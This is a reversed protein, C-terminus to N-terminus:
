KHRIVLFANSYQGFRLLLPHKTRIVCEISTICKFCGGKKCWFHTLITASYTQSARNLLLWKLEIIDSWRTTYNPSKFEHKIADAFQTAKVRSDKGRFQQSGLIITETGNVKNLKDLVKDLEKM